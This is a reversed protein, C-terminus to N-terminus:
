LITFVKETGYYERWNTNYFDFMRGLRAQDLEHYGLSEIISLLFERVNEVKKADEIVM